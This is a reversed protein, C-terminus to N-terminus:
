YFHKTLVRQINVYVKKRCYPHKIPVGSEKLYSQYEHGSTRPGAAAPRGFKTKSSTLTIGNGSMVASKYM